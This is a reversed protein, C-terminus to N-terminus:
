LNEYACIMLNRARQSTIRLSKGRPDKPVGPAVLFVCVENWQQKMLKRSIPDVRRQSHNEIQTLHEVQQIFLHTQLDTDFVLLLIQASSHSDLIVNLVNNETKCVWILKIQTITSKPKGGTGM